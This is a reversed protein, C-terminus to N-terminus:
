SSMVWWNHTSLCSTKSETPHGLLTAGIFEPWDNRVGISTFFTFGIIEHSPLTLWAHFNARQLPHNLELMPKLDTTPTYFVLQKQYSVYGLTVAVPVDLIRELPKHM